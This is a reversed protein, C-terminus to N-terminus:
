GLWSKSFKRENAFVGRTTLVSANAAPKGAFMEVSCKIFKSTLIVLPITDDRVPILAFVNKKSAASFGPFLPPGMVSALAFTIPTATAITGSVLLPNIAIFAFVTM